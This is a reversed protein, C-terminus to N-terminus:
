YTAYQKTRFLGCARRPVTARLWGASQMANSDIGGSSFCVQTGHWSAGHVGHLQEPSLFQELGHHGLSCGLSTTGQHLSKSCRVVSHQGAKFCRGSAWGDVEAARLGFRTAPRICSSPGLVTKLDIQKRATPGQLTQTSSKTICKAACIAM